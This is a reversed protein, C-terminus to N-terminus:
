ASMLNSLHNLASITPRFPILYAMSVGPAAPYNQPVHTGM